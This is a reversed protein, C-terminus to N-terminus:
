STEKIVIQRYQWLELIHGVVKGTFTLTVGAEGDMWTGFIKQGGPVKISFTQQAVVNHNKDCLKLTIDASHEVTDNNLVTIGVEEHDGWQNTSVENDVHIHFRQQPTLATNGAMVYGLIGLACVAPIILLITKGKM